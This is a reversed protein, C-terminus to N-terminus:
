LKGSAQKHDAKQRQGQRRNGRGLTMGSVIQSQGARTLGVLLREIELGPPIIPTTPILPIERLRFEGRPAKQLVIRTGESHLRVQGIDLSDIRAAAKGRSM